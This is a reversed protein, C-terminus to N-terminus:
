KKLRLIKGRQTNLSQGASGSTHDGVAVYLKGDIGFKMAGGNHWKDAPSSIEFLDRMSAHSAAFLRGVEGLDDRELAAVTDLVRDNENVVHKARAFAIM